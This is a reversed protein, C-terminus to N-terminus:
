SLDWVKQNRLNQNLKEFFRFIKEFILFKNLLSEPLFLKVLFNWGLGFNCVSKPESSSVKIFDLRVM